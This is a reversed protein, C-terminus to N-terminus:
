AVPANKVSEVLDLAAKSWTPFEFNFGLSLLRGPVVRRSKLLLETDTRMVVAGIEAMWAMAPLGIPVGWASRLHRMFDRQPLPHPACVNIPGSVDQREVLFDIVRLFDKEHIWSVFQHGGAIAGGLGLRTMKSLVGFVSEPNSGMVMATRLAVKRTKPTKAKELEAEWNTAIKVSFDWYRPVNVEQGGILGTAEDNAEDFRHAYITATSMQLWVRPARQTQELASEIARGIIKTSDVRSDMMQRLNKETYRCNVTRGALNIVVDADNFEQFWPGQNVGDWKVTRVRADKPVDAAEGRSLILVDHGQKLLHKTVATGVHGTGGAVIFKM